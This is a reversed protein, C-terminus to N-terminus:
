LSKLQACMDICHMNHTPYHVMGSILALPSTQDRMPVFKDCRSLDRNLSIDTAITQRETVTAKTECKGYITPQLCVSCMLTEQVYKILIQDHYIREADRKRM